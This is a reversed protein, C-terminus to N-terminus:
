CQHGKFQGRPKLFGVSLHPLSMLDLASYLLRGFCDTGLRSLQARGNYPAKIGVTPGCRHCLLAQEEKLREVSREKGASRRSLEGLENHGAPHLPALCHSVRGPVVLAM